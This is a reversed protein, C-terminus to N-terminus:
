GKVMDVADGLADQNLFLATNQWSKCLKFSNNPFGEPKLYELESLVPEAIYVTKKVTQQGLNELQNRSSEVEEVSDEIAQNLIGKMFLALKKQDETKVNKNVEM